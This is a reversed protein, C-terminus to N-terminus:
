CQVWCLVSFWALAASVCSVKLTVQSFCFAKAAVCSSLALLGTWLCLV